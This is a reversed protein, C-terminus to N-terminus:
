CTLVVYIISLFEIIYNKNGLNRQEKILKHMSENNILICTYRYTNYQFVVM